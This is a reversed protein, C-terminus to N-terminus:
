LDWDDDLVREPIEIPEVVSGEYSDIMEIEYCMNAEEKIQPRHNAAWYLSLALFINTM